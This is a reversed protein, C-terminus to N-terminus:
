RRRGTEGGRRGRDGDRAAARGLRGRRGASAPRRSGRLADAAGRPPPPDREPDAGARRHGADRGDAPRSTRQLVPERAGAAVPVVPAGSCPLPAAAPDPRDAAAAAQRSRSGGDTRARGAGRSDPEHVAGACAPRRRPGAAGTVHSPHRPSLPRRPRLLQRGRGSTGPGAGRGLHRGPNGGAGDAGRRVRPRWPREMRTRAAAPRDVKGSRTLPLEGLVVVASPVMYEPLHRAAHQKLEGPNVGQGTVYAALRVGTAAAQMPVVVARSVGDHSELVSEIEGPEIRYGRVKVQDDDRGLFEIQGDQCWRARDGTQYMRSGPPGWPDPLFRGATLGPRGLYGRAVGIGGIWLEGAVGVPVQRGRGDLVQLRTNHIPRGIAVQSRRCPWECEWASVDVSAETPGYLNHMRCGLVELCRRVLDLGLAEGSCVVDRLGACCGRGRREVEALFPVLMSPVFHVVRVDAAEIVDVLYAPDRHGGPAAVVITGGVALPWFFEWVSVDFTFPTKQLVREGAALPYADQMWVLRNVAGRHEAMVGKPTGTSGSTFIVYALDSATVGSDPPSAEEGAPLEDTGEIVVAAGADAAMLRLRQPPYGPELPLYAAGAKLVGLLVAVMEASRELRVGVVAGRGVGRSHLWWALYNARRDLEAYTLQEEGSMVAVADPCVAAREEFLQHVCRESPYPAATRNWAELLDREVPTLLELDALRAGPRTGMQGLLQALHAAVREAGAADLRDRKYALRMVLRRGSRAKLTLPYHTRDTGGAGRVRLGGVQGVTELPHNEYIYLSEFLPEGRRVGSWGQVDVLSSQEYERQEAQEKQLGRLWEWVGQDDDVEAVVPLTNIFLGVMREMGAMAGRGSVTTGYVVRREGSYRSLLLAWAGGVVTGLTVRERRALEELGRTTEEDLEAQHEGYGPEDGRSGVGLDTASEVGGLRASWYREEDGRDRGRLWTVYERYPRVRGLEVPEGSVLQGYARWLEGLVISSSWGDLMVHHFSWVMVAGGVLELVVVRMLPARGLEFGERRERELVGALRGELEEAGVGRWDERRVPVEVDRRVVQLPVGEDQWFVASRLAAHRSVVVGWARELVVVDVDGELRQVTQAVYVGSTPETVCHFLMGEQLPTLPLLDEVDRDRRTAM